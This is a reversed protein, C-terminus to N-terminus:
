ACPLITWFLIGQPFEKSKEVWNQTEFNFRATAVDFGDSVALRKSITADAFPADCAYEKTPPSERANVWISM